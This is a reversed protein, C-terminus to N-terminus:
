FDYGFLSIDAEFTRGVLEKTEENYFQQYPRTNSVNLKPLSASIGIRSCITEFDANINELKGIFDVLQEGSESFIIDKQLNIEQTCRWQIYENFDSFGKVIDHQYHKEFRLMYKYLSVQWDWPNRVIAFSFYANYAKQGMAEILDPATTHAPYPQPNFPTPINVRKLIRSVTQQWPPTAYPLLANKISTGANKYVHIFIFKRTKSILM